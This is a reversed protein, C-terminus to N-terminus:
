MADAVHPVPIAFYSWLIGALGAYVTPLRLVRNISDRISFRGRSLIYYGMTVEAFGSGMILFIYVGLHQAGFLATFLPIGFYGTNGSGIGLASLNGRADQLGLMHHLRWTMFMIFIGIVFNILPLSLEDLAFKARATFGFFVMPTILFIALKAIAKEDLQLYRKGIFGLIIIFYLPLLQAL